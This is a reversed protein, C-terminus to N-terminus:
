VLRYNVFLVYWVANNAIHVIISGWLSRSFQYVLALLVGQAFAVPALGHMIAFLLTSGLVATILGHSKKLISFVQGRYLAEEIVPIVVLLAAIYAFRAPPSLWYVFVKTQRAMDPDVAWAVWLAAGIFALGSGTVLCFRRVNAPARLSVPCLPWLIYMAVADILFFGFIYAIPYKAGTFLMGYARTLIILFIAATFVSILVRKDRGGWGRAPSLLEERRSGFWLRM